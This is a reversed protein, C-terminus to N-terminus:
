YRVVITSLIGQVSKTLLRPGTIAILIAGLPASIVVSLVSLALITRGYREEDEPTGGANNGGLVKDLAAPGLAAQSTKNVSKTM